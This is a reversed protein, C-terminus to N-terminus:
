CLLGPPLRFVLFTEPKQDTMRIRAARTALTIASVKRKRLKKEMLQNLRTTVVSEDSIQLLIQLMKASSSTIRIRRSRLIEGRQGLFTGGKERQRGRSDDRRRLNQTKQNSIRILKPETTTSILDM